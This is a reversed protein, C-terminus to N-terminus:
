ARILTRTRSLTRTRTLLALLQHTRDDPQVDRADHALREVALRLLAGLLRRLLVPGGGTLTLTLTLTLARLLLRFSYVGEVLNALM